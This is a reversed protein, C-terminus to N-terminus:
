EQPLARLVTRLLSPGLSLGIMPGLTKLFNCFRGNESASVKGLIDRHTVVLSILIENELGKDVGPKLRERDIAKQAEELYNTLSSLLPLVDAPAITAEVSARGFVRERRHHLGHKEVLVSVLGSLMLYEHDPLREIALRLAHAHKAMDALTTRWEKKDLRSAAISPHLLVSLATEAHSLFGDLAERRAGAPIAPWCAALTRRQLPTFGKFPPPPKKENSKKPRM